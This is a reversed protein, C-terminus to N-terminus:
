PRVGRRRLKVVAPDWNGGLRRKWRWGSWLMFPGVVNVLFLVFLFILTPRGPFDDPSCPPFLSIALWIMSVTLAISFPRGAERVGKALTPWGAFLGAALMILSFVHATSSLRSALVVSASLASTLSLSSTLTKEDPGEDDRSSASGASSRRRRKAQRARHRRRADPGTTFDALLLHVFLLGGALPWISDSTTASTLTGLVPALLSLLLPPLLLPRLAGSVPLLSETKAAKDSGWGFRWLAYAALELATCSWGVEAAGFDGVLMAYFVALFLAIVALHQSVPLTALMLPFLRPRPRPPLSDLEALYSPPVYNDPFPQRRWLVKEWVADSADGNAQPRARKEGNRTPM